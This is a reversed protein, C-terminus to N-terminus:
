CPSVICWISNGLVLEIVDRSKEGLWFPYELFTEGSVADM